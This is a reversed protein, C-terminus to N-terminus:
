VSFAAEFGIRPALEAAMVAGALSHFAVGILIIINILLRCESNVVQMAPM